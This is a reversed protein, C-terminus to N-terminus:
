RTTAPLWMVPRTTCAQRVPPPTCGERGMTRFNVDAVTPTPPTPRGERVRVPDLRVMWGAPLDGSGTVATTPDSNMAGAQASLPAAVALAILAIVIRKM